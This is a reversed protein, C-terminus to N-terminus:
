KYLSKIEDPYEIDPRNVLRRPKGYLYYPECFEEIEFIYHGKYISTDFIPGEWFGLDDINYKLDVLGWTGNKQYGMFQGKALNLFFYNNFVNRTQEVNDFGIVSKLDYQYITWIDNKAARLGIISNGVYEFKRGNKETKLGLRKMQAVNIEAPEELVIWGIFKLSDPSYFIRDVIINVQQRERNSYDIMYVQYRGYGLSMFEKITYKILREDSTTPRSNYDFNPKNMYINRNCSLIHLLLAILFIYSVSTSVAKKKM